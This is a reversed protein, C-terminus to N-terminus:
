QTLWSLGALGPENKRSTLQQYVNVGHYKIVITPGKRARLVEM